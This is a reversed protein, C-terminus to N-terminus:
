KLDCAAILPVMGWTFADQVQSSALTPSRHGWYDKDSNRRSSEESAVVSRMEPAEEEWFCSHILKRLLTGPDM